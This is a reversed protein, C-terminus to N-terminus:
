PDLGCELGGSHVNAYCVDTISWYLPPPQTCWLGRVVTNGLRGKANM